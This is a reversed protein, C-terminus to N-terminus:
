KERVIQFQVLSLVLVILMLITSEASAYGMKFFKFGNEYIDFVLTRVMSAPSGQTEGTMVYVPTFVNFADITSVIMVFLLIPKIRFPLLSSPMGATQEMM